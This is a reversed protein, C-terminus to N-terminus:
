KSCLLWANKFQEQQKLENLKNNAVDKEVFSSHVIRFHGSGEKIKLNQLGKSEMLTVTAQADRMTELSAIIIHYRPVSVNPTPKPAPTTITPQVTVTKVETKPQEKVVKEEKPQTVPQKVVAEKVKNTSTMPINVKKVEKKTTEKAPTPSAKKHIDPNIVNMALSQSKIVDIFDNSSLSAYDGQDMYTNEVPVSLIFFLLIAAAVAVADTIWRPTQISKKSESPQSLKPRFEIIKSESTSVKSLPSMYFHPLSYLSPTMVNPEDTRFEFDNHINCYLNGICKLYVCGNKYLQDKLDSVEREIRRNADRFDMHYTQMYFQVLLGDNITLKPNFGISRKPPYFIQEHSDYYASENHVIFGGLGPVIVCDNELLLIEIHKALEKM